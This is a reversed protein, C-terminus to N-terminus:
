ILDAEEIFDGRNVVERKSSLEEVVNDFDRLVELMRLNLEAVVRKSGEDM